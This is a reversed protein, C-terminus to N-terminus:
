RHIVISEGALNGEEDEDLEPRHLPIASETARPACKTRAKGWLKRPHAPQVTDGTPTSRWRWFHTDAAAM